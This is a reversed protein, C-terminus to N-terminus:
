HEIVRDTLFVSLGILVLIAGYVPSLGCYHVLVAAAATMGLVVINVASIQKLSLRLLVRLKRPSSLDSFAESERWRRATRLLGRSLGVLILATGGLSCTILLGFSISAQLDADITAQFDGRARHDAISRMTLATTMMSIALLLVGLSVLPLRSWWGASKRSALEAM